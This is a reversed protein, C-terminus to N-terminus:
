QIQELFWPVGAKQRKGSRLALHIKGGDISMVRGAWQGLNSGLSRRASRLDKFALVDDLLGQWPTVGVAPNLAEPLALAQLDDITVPKAGHTDWWEAFFLRWAERDALKGALTGENELFGPVDAAALIGGVVDCWKQFSGKIAGSKPRGRDLWNRVLVLAAWVLEARHSQAWELLDGHRFGTRHEPEEVLPELRIVACRRAIDESLSVNNATAAWVCRIPATRTASAGLVRDSFADQTLALALANSDLRTVNDFFLHSRGEILSAFLMKRVESEDADLSQSPAPRGLAPISVAAALLGKGSGRLAADILHMPTAGDIMPRVFPLLGLALAHARSADDTFPFDVLLEDLWLSRATQVAQSTPETDPIALDHRVLLELDAAYGPQDYLRGDPGFVPASVVASLHPFPLEPLALILDAADKPPATPKGAANQWTAVDVLHNLLGSKTLLRIKPVGNGMIDALAEAAVFLRPPDNAALLAGLAADRMAALDASVGICKRAPAQHSPQGSQAPAPGSGPQAPQPNVAAQAAAVAAPDVTAGPVYINATQAIAHDISRDRYDQREWKQRYLGSQRFLSDMRGADRGTWYALIRLLAADAASHDGGQLGTDGAWLRDFEAGQSGSRIKAVLAADDLTISPVPASQPARVGKGADLLLALVFAPLPAPALTHPDAGRAWQYRNGSPHISPAVAIYGSHGRVDVGVPLGGRANSLTVGAPMQYLLHRGGSGTVACTTPHNTLLDALLDAGAFDPKAVDFDLAVLGAGGVRVGINADPWKQWWERIQDPDCTADKVGHETLTDKDRPRLPLVPWQLQGAYHLAADLMANDNTLKQPITSM